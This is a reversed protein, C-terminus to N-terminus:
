EKDGDIVVWIKNPIKPAWYTGGKSWLLKFKNSNIQIFGLHEQEDPAQGV